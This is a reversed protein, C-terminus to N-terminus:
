EALVRVSLVLDDETKAFYLGLLHSFALEVGNKFAVQVEFVEKILKVDLDEDSVMQWGLVDLFIFLEIAFLSYVELAFIADELERFLGDAIQPFLM